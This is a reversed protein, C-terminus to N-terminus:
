ESNNAHVATNPRLMVELSISMSGDPVGVARPRDIPAIRRNGAPRNPAPTAREEVFEPGDVPEPPAGLPV